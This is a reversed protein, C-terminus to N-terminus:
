DACDKQPQIPLELTKEGRKIRLSAPSRKELIEDLAKQKEPGWSDYNLENIALLIDGPRIGAKEAASKEQVRWIRLQQPQGLANAYDYEYGLRFACGPPGKMKKEEKPPALSIQALGWTVEDVSPYGVELMRDSAKLHLHFLPKHPLLFENAWGIIDIQVLQDEPALEILLDRKPRIKAISFRQSRDTSIFKNKYLELSIEMNADRRSKALLYGKASFIKEIKNKIQDFFKREFENANAVSRIFFKRGTQVTQPSEGLVMEFLSPNPKLQAKIDAVNDAAAVSAAATLFLFLFKM